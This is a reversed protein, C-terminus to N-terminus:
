QPEKRSSGQFSPKWPTGLGIKQYVDAASDYTLFEDPLGAPALRPGRSGAPAGPDPPMSRPESGGKWVRRPDPHRSNEVFERLNYIM